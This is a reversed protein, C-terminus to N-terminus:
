MQKLAIAAFDLIIKGGAKGKIVGIVKKTKKQLYHDKVEEKKITQYTLGSKLVVLVNMFIM